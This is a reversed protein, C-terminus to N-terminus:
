DHDGEDDGDDWPEDDAEDDEDIGTEELWDGIEDQIRAAKYAHWELQLGGTLDAAGKEALFEAKWEAEAEPDLFPVLEYRGGIDDLYHQAVEARERAQGQLSGPRLTGAEAQRLYEAPVFHVRGTDTDLVYERDVREADLFAKLLGDMDFATPKM